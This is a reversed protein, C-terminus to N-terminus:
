ILIHGETIGEQVGCLDIERLNNFEEVLCQFPGNADVEAVLQNSASINAKKFCIVTRAEPM